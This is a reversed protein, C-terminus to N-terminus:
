ANIRPTRAVFVSTAPGSVAGTDIRIAQLQQGGLKYGAGSIAVHRAVAQRLNREDAARVDSFRTEDVRQRTRLDRPRARRGALCAQRVDVPDREFGPGASRAPPAHIEDIERPVAVRAAARTRG